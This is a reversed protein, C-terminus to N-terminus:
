REGGTGERPTRTLAPITRGRASCDILEALRRARTEPRKASMVRWLATRRYSAPRSQFYAWAAADARFERESAADLEAAAPQEYAYVGSRAATRAEFARVGAPRARGAAVLEQMTAVNVASWISGARRPTFRIAYREDDLRRRVGDIWGVCLAEAVSEPWTVSPRGSGKKYFGVWLERATAHHADLWARLEAPAAFFTAAGPPPAAM